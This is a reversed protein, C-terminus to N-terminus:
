LVNPTPVHTALAIESCDLSAQSHVASGGRLGLCRIVDRFSRVLLDAAAAWVGAEPGGTAVVLRTMVSWFPRYSFCPLPSNLASWLRTLFPEEEGSRPPEADSDM